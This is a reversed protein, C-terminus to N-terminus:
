IIKENIICGLLGMGIAGLYFAWFKKTIQMQTLEPNMFSYVLPVAVFGIITCITMVFIAKTIKDKM